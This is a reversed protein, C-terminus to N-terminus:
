EHATNVIWPTGFRDRLDGFGATWFTKQFPMNVTGGEALTDFVQKAEEATPYTLSLAFGSMGTYPQGAMGDSAMLVGQDLVLRSHLIRKANEPSAQAGLPSEAHTMMSELTGGLTKEYFRMAEACNGDFTLYAELRPM